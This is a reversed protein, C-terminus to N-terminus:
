DLDAAFRATHHAVREQVVSHPVLVGGGEAIIDRGTSFNMSHWFHFFLDGYTSCFGHSVTGRQGFPGDSTFWGNPFEVNTPVLAEVHDSNFLGSNRLYRTILYGPDNGEGSRFHLGTRELFSRRIMLLSPHLTLQQQSADRRTEFNAVVGVVKREALKATMWNNWGRRLFLTDVDTVVIVENDTMSIMRQLSDGHSLPCPVGRPLGRFVTVFGYKAAICDFRESEDHTTFNKFVYYDFPLETNLRISNLHAAFYASSNLYAAYIGLQPRRKRFPRTMKYVAAVAPTTRRLIPRTVRCCLREVAPAM